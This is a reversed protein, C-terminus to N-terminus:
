HLLISFLAFHCPFWCTNSDQWKVLHVEFGALFSFPWQVEILPSTVSNQDATVEVRHGQLPRAQLQRLRGTETQSMSINISLDKLRWSSEVGQSKLEKFGNQLRQAYLHTDIYSHM